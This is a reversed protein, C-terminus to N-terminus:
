DGKRFGIPKKKPVSLTCVPSRGQHKLHWNSM